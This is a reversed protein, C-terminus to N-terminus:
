PAHVRVAVPRAARAVHHRRRRLRRDARAARAVHHRRRRPPSRRSCRPGRSAATTSSPSSRRSCRPGRSVATTSSPAIARADRAVHHRRLRRAAPPRSSRSCCGTAAAAAQQLELRPRRGENAVAPPGGVRRQCNQQQFILHPLRARELSWRAAPTYAWGDRRTTSRSSAQWVNARHAGGPTLAGDWPYRWRLMTMPWSRAAPSAVDRAATRLSAMRTAALEGVSRVAAPWSAAESIRRAKSHVGADSYPFTSM